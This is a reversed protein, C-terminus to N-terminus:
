IELKNKKLIEHSLKKYEESTGHTDLFVNVLYSNHIQCGGNSFNLGLFYLLTTLISFKSNSDQIRQRAGGNVESHPKVTSNLRLSWNEEQQFLAVVQGKWMM